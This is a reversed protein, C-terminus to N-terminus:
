NTNYLYISRFIFVMDSNFFSFRIVSSFFITSVKFFLRGFSAGKSKENEISGIRANTSLSAQKYLIASIASDTYSSKTFSRKIAANIKDRANMSVSVSKQVRISLNSDAMLDRFISSMLFNKVSQKIPTFDSSSLCNLFGLSGLRIVVGVLM